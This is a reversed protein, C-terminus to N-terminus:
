TPEQEVMEHNEYINGIIEGYESVWPMSVNMACGDRNGFFKGDEFEIIAINERDGICFSVIDGEYIEKGSWIEPPHGNAIWKSQEEKILEQWKTADKLGTYQMPIMETYFKSLELTKGHVNIFGRGDVSLTLQDKGMEEATFMKKGVSHWARFKIERM